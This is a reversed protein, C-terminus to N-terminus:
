STTSPVSSSVSSVSRGQDGRDGSVGPTTALLAIGVGLAVLALADVWTARVAIGEPRRGRGIVRAVAACALTLVLIQIAEFAGVWVAVAASAAIASTVLWLAPARHREDPTM